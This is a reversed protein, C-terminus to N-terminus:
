IPHFGRTGDIMVHDTPVQRRAAGYATVSGAVSRSPWTASAMHLCRWDSRFPDLKKERSGRPTTSDRNSFESVRWQFVTVPLRSIVLALM